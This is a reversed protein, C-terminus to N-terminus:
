GTKRCVPCHGEHTWVKKFHALESAHKERYRNLDTVKAM